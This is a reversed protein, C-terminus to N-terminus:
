EPLGGVGAHAWEATDIIRRGTPPAEGREVPHGAAIWAATGGTVNTVNTFGVQALFQAARNSRHGGQCITYLARHQRLEDLHGALESQPVNVAGPVHGARYEEPERVDVLAVGEPLPGDLETVPLEPVRSLSTLM